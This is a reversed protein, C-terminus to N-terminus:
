LIVASWAALSNLGNKARPRVIAAYVPINSPARNQPKLASIMPRFNAKLVDRKIHEIKAMMAPDEGFQITSPSQTESDANPAPPLRTNSVVTKM